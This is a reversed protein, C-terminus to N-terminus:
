GVSDLGRAYRLRQIYRNYERVAERREAAGRRKAARWERDAWECRM